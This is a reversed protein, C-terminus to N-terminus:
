NVIITQENTKKLYARVTHQLSAKLEQNEQKIEKTGPSYSYAVKSLPRIM